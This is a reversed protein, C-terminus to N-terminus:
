GGAPSDGLVPGPCSRVLLGRVRVWDDRQAPRGRAGSGDPRSAGRDPPASFRDWLSRAVISLAAVAYFMVAAFWHLALEAAGLKKRRFFLMVGIALLGAVAYLLSWAGWGLGVLRLVKGPLVWGVLLVAVVAIPITV